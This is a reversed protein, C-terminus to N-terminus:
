KLKYIPVLVELIFLFLSRAEFQKYFLLLSYFNYANKSSPFKGNIVDNAYDKVSKQIIKRINSYRKVFKPYFNSLGIMDDTVLIQGDCYKSAGIGITPVSVSNTIKKALSEIVCEVM